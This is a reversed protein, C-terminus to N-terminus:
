LNRIALPEASSLTVRSGRRPRTVRGHSKAMHFKAMHFKAMHFKAV